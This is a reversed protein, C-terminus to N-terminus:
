IRANQSLIQSPYSAISQYNTTTYNLAFSPLHIFIYAHSKISHICVSIPMYNYLLLDEDLLLLMACQDGKVLSKFYGRFFSTLDWHLWCIILREMHIYFFYKTMKLDFTLCLIQQQSFVTNKTEGVTPWGGFHNFITLSKRFM